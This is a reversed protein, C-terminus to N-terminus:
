PKLFRGLPWENNALSRSWYVNAAADMSSEM